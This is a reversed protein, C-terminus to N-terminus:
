PAQSHFIGDFGVLFVDDPGTGWLGHANVTPVSDCQRWQTGDFHLMASNAWTGEGCVLVDTPSSGWVARLSPLVGDDTGPNAPFPMQVWASGILQLITGNTGVVFVPGGAFGWVDLLRESTPTAMQTWVVGDFHFIGGGDGVVYVDDKATGWIANQPALSPFEQCVWGAGGDKLLASGYPGNETAYRAYYIPGWVDTLEVGRPNPVSTWEQGDFHYAAGYAGVVWVDASSSGWVAKFHDTGEFPGAVRTWQVGDYHVVVGGWAVAYVNNWSRGWVGTFFSNTPEEMRVWERAAPEGAAASLSALSVCLLLVVLRRIGGWRACARFSRMEVEQSVRAFDVLSYCPLGDCAPDRGATEAVQCSSGALGGGTELYVGVGPIRHGFARRM